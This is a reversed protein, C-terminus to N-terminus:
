SGVLFSRKAARMWETICNFAILLEGYSVDVFKVGASGWGANNVLVDLRGGLKEICQKIIAASEEVQARTLSNM